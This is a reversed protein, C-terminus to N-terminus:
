NTELDLTGTERRKMVMKIMDLEEKNESKVKKGHFKSQNQVSVFFDYNGTSKLQNVFKENNCSALSRM